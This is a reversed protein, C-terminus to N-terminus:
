DAFLNFKTPDLIGKRSVGSELDRKVVKGADGEKKQTLRPGDGDMQIHVYACPHSTFASLPRSSDM